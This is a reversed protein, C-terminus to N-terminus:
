CKKARTAFLDLKKTGEKSPSLEVFNKIEENIKVIAKEHSDNWEWEADKKLISRLPFRISALSLIFKSFQNVAGWISSLQKLNTPRLRESIVQSKLNTPSICTQTLKFGLWEISEQAFICKGAKLQLNADYPVRMVQRVKNVHEQKTGKPVILIDDIYVFVSDINPLTLVIIKQFETPM